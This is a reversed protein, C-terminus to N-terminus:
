LIISFTISKHIQGFKIYHLMCSFYINLLKCTLESIDTAEASSLIAISSKLSAINDANEEAYQQQNYNTVTNFAGLGAAATALLNSQVM